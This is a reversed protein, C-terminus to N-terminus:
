EKEEAFVPQTALFRAIEANMTDTRFEPGSRLPVFLRAGPALTVDPDANWPAIGLRIANGDPQIIWLWDPDAEAHKPCAELYRTATRLGDFPLSCDRAVAGLIEISSPRAPYIIEDGSQLPRNQKRELELRIPDLSVLRRGTAAMPAIQLRLRQALTARPGNGNVQAERIQMTLDFLIGIKLKNQDAKAATSLWAAGALYADNRVGAARAADFLRAGGPLTHPGPDRVLGKVTIEVANVTDDAQSPTEWLLAALLCVLYRTVPTMMQPATM